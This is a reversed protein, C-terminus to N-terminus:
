RRVSAAESRHADFDHGARDIPAPRHDIRLPRDQADRQSRRATSVPRRTAKSPGIDQYARPAVQVTRAVADAADGLTGAALGALVAAGLATPEQALVPQVTRGTVDAKVQLWLESPLLVSANSRDPVLPAPSPIPHMGQQEFTLMSRAMHLPSTVLVFGTLGRDALMRKIIVAEDRTTKSESEELIRDAPVGVEVLARQLAVSEPAAASDAETVGGSAIVLPRDLLDFLRAAELVRLGAEMTVSSLQRGAARLNRSGSGLVVVVRAGRAEGASAIPRYGGTLTRALLGAGLPSSLVLYFILVAAVWRRGWRALSPVFLMITGPTLLALVCALHAPRLNAKLFDLM